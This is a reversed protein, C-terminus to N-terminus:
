NQHFIFREEPLCGSWDETVLMSSLTGSDETGQGGVVPYTM